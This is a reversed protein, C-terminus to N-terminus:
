LSNTPTTSDDNQPNIEASLFDVVEDSTLITCNPYLKKLDPVLSDTHTNTVIALPKLLMARKISGDQNVLEVITDRRRQASTKAFYEAIVIPDLIVLFCGHTYADIYGSGALRGIDGSIASNEIVSLVAAIQQEVTGRTIGHGWFTALLEPSLKKLKDRLEYVPPFTNKTDYISDSHKLYLEHATRNYRESDILVRERSKPKQIEEM